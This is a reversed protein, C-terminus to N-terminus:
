LSSISWTWTFIGAHPPEVKIKGTTDTVTLTLEHDGEPLTLLLESLTENAIAEILADDDEGVSLMVTPQETTSDAPAGDFAPLVTESTPILPEGNLSWVIEQVDDGFVTTISFQEPENAIVQMSQVRPSLERIGETLTYLRLIWQESNIPGFPADFSRMRSDETGRYVGTSRYLGGEFIGVGEDGAFEPLPVSPDIWHAWPVERPDDLVSVNKFRGEEFAPMGAVVPILNDVYEDALDALSHGMEHLAVEPYFASTIAVSSGSNGSGGFRIDNVLLIIQDFDPYENLSAEQLKFMNACVLRPISRCNYASDFATDRKDIEDSDDSGSQQSVTQIMHFNFAGLHESIGEDSRIYDIVNDVHRRFTREEDIAYGDGLIVIHVGKGQKFGSLTTGNGSATRPYVDIVIDERIVAGRSDRGVITLETKQAQNIDLVQLDIKSGNVSTEFLPNPEVSITVGDSDLDEPFVNFNVSQMGYLEQPAQGVNLAPPDNIDIVNIEFDVYTDRLGTSDTVTLSMGDFLGIDTQEPIGSLVATDPNLTLWDPLNTASFVLPDDDGDTADLITSYLRGQDATTEIERNLVPADAVPTITILVSVNQGDSGAYIFSDDGHFNLLPTYQFIGGQSRLTLEGAGPLARIDVNTASDSQDPLLFLGDLVDDEEITFRLSATSPEFDGEIPTGAPSTDDFLVVPPGSGGGSDCGALALSGCTLVLLVKRLPIMVKGVTTEHNM